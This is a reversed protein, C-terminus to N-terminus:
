TFATGESKMVAPRSMETAPQRFTVLCVGGPASGFLFVLSPPGCVAEQALALRGRTFSDWHCRSVPASQRLALGLLRSVDLLCRTPLVVLCFFLSLLWGEFLVFLPALFHSLGPPWWRAIKEVKGIAKKHPDSTRFPVSLMCNDEGDLLYM